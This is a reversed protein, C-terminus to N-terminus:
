ATEHDFFMRKKGDPNVAYIKIWSYANSYQEETFQLGTNEVFAELSPDNEVKIEIGLASRCKPRFCPQYLLEEQTHDSSIGEYGHYRSDFVIHEAGCIECKVKVVTIGAFFPKPPIFVEEKPGTLGAHTLLRWHHLTGDEDKTCTSAPCGSLLYNLADYYPKMLLEEEATYCNIYPIFARCGCSCFLSLSIWSNSASVIQTKEKLYAPVPILFIVM